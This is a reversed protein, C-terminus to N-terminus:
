EDGDPGDALLEELLQGDEPGLEAVFRALVAARDDGTELLRHMRRAALTSADLWCYAFARGVRERSLIGKAHLRSMATMVTTYALGDGLAEQVQAPTLPEGAAALVALVEQELGGPRRSAKPKGPRRTIGM